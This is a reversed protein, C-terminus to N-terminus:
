WEPRPLVKEIKEPNPEMTAPVLFKDWDTRKEMEEKVDAPIFDKGVRIEWGGGLARYVAVLYSAVSGNTSVMNDQSSVLAREADLVRQYDVLGEGYQVLSIEVSRKAAAVAELQFNMANKAQLFGVLGDEVEQFAKLVTNQYNVALQQFRADEVRVRNKIRGYNFIDWTFTPGAFWELSNSSFLNGM